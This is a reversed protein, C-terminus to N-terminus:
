FVRLVLLHQEYCLDYCFPHEGQTAAFPPQGQRPLGSDNVYRQVALSLLLHGMSASLLLGHMPLLAKPAESVQYDSGECFGGEESPGLTGM